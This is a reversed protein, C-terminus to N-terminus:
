DDEWTNWNESYGHCKGRLGYWRPYNEGRKDSLGVLYTTYDQWSKLPEFVLQHATRIGTKADKYCELLNMLGEGIPLPIPSRIIFHYNVQGNDNHRVWFFKLKNKPLGFSALWKDKLYRWQRNTMSDTYPLTAIYEKYNAPYALAMKDQVIKAYREWHNSCDRDACKAKAWSGDKRQVPMGEFCMIKAKTNCISKLYVLNIHSQLDM